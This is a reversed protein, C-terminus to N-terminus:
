FKGGDVRIVQGTVYTSKDSVLFLVVDAIEKTVEQIRVGLWGRKTEGFEILQNIVVKAQNSPIAFGIGISGAGPAPIARLLDHVHALLTENDDRYCLNM